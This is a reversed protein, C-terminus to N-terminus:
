DLMTPFPLPHEYHCNVNVFACTRMIYSINMYILLLIHIMCFNVTATKIGGKCLLNHTQSSAYHISIVNSNSTRFLMFAFIFYLLVYCDMNSIHDDTRHTKALRVDFISIYDRRGDNSDTAIIRLAARNHFTLYPRSALPRSVTLLVSLSQSPTTPLLVSIKM